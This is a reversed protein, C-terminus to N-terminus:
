DSIEKKLEMLMDIGNKEPMVLDTIILDSKSKRYVKIGDEGNVAQIVEHEDMELMDTFMERLEPDDDVILIKAM